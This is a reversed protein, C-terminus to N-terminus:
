RRFWAFAVLGLMAVGAIIAGLGPLLDSFAFVKPDARFTPSVTLFIGLGICFLGGAGWRIMRYWTLVSWSPAPPESQVRTEPVEEERKEPLLPRDAVPVVQGCM